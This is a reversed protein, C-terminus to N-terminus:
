SIGERFVIRTAIDFVTIDILPLTNPASFVYPKPRSGIVNELALSTSPSNPREQSIPQNKM